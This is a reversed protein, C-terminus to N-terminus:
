ELTNFGVFFFFTANEKERYNSVLAQPNTQTM